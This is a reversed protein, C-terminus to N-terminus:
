FGVELPLHAVLEILCVDCFTDQERPEVPQATPDPAVIDIWVANMKSRMIVSPASLLLDRGCSVLDWAVHRCQKGSCDIDAGRAFNAASTWIRSASKNRNLCDYQGEVCIARSARWLVHIRLYRDVRRGLLCCDVSGRVVPRDTRKRRCESRAFRSILASNRWTARNRNRPGPM